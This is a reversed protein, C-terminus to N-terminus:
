SAVLGGPLPRAPLAPPQGLLGTQAHVALWARSLLASVGEAGAVCCLMPQPRAFHWPRAHPWLHVLGIRDPEAIHLAINGCDDRLRRVDAATIRTLPLNFTLSLVIGIRMVIRRDTLTYVTTRASLWAILALMGTAAAMLPLPLAAALLADQASGGEGYVYSARLLLILAFYATIARLHFRERALRRWCPSGQWLVTEGAPLTEPLGHAAEFEHEHGHSSVPRPATM